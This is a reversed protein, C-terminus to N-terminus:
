TEFHSSPNAEFPRNEYWVEWGTHWPGVCCNFDCKLFRRRSFPKRSYKRHLYKLKVLSDFLFANKARVPTGMMLWNELFNGCFSKRYATALAVKQKCKQTWVLFNLQFCQEMEFLSAKKLRRSWDSWSQVVQTLSSTLLFYLITDQWFAGPHYYKERTVWGKGMYQDSTSAHGVEGRM